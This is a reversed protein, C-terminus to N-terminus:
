KQLNPATCITRILERVKSQGISYIALTGEKKRNVLTARRLLGLHQSLVSQPMHLLDQLDKVSRPKKCLTYLISLRQPHGIIKLIAAWGNIGDSFNPPLTDSNNNM